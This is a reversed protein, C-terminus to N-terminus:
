PGARDRPRAQLRLRTDKGRFQSTYQFLSPVPNGDERLGCSLSDRVSYRRRADPRTHGRAFPAARAPAFPRFARARPLSRYLPIPLQRPVTAGDAARLFLAGGPPPPECVAPGRVTHPYLGRHQSKAAEFRSPASFRRLFGTLRREKLCPTRFLRRCSVSLRSGSTRAPGSALRENGKGSSRPASRRTRHLHRSRAADERITQTRTAM